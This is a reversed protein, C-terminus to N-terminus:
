VTMAATRFGFSAFELARKSRGLPLPLTKIVVFISLVDSVSAVVAAFSNSHLCPMVANSMTTALAPMELTNGGTLLALIISIRSCIVTSRM